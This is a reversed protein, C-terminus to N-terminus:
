LLRKVYVATMVSTYVAGIVMAITPVVGGPNLDFGGLIVCLNNVAAYLRAAAGPVAVRWLLEVVLASRGRSRLWADTKVAIIYVVAASTLTFAYDRWVLHPAENYYYYVPNSEYGVGSILFLWTTIYDATMSIIVLILLKLM